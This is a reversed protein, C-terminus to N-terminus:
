SVWGELVQSVMEPHTSGRSDEALYIARLRDYAVELQDNVIWYDFFPAQIIEERANAMRRQISQSSESGRSLLRKELEHRSPPFLFIFVGRDLSNKLQCAGQVDVDFLLDRGSELITRTEQLPTAYFNDHVEAWEAFHGQERLELFRERSVFHYERGDAERNRPPRTTYSVSYAFGPFERRLMEVLTSKGTGSPASIVLAIGKRSSKLTM